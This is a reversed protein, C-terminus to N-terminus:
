ERKSLMVIECVMRAYHRTPLWVLKKVFNEILENAQM